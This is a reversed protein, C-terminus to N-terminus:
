NNRKDNEIVEDIKGRAIKLEKSSPKIEKLIGQLDKCLLMLNDSCDNCALWLIGDINDNEILRMLSMELNNLGDQINCISNKIAKDCEVGDIDSESIMNYVYVIFYHSYMIQIKM